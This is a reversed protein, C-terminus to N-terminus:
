TIVGAVLKYCWERYPEGLSICLFVEKTIKYDGVPKSKFKNEIPDTIILWYETGKYKFKARAKKGKFEQDVHIVFSEPKIFVLSSRIEREAKEQPLRDNLGNSSHWGNSWLSPVDDLMKPLYKKDLKGDKVWSQGPAILINEVQYAQPLPRQLPISVIDLLEPYVGKGCTTERVTLEGTQRDSVPRIWAGFRNQRFYEKGAICRGRLKRSNAL